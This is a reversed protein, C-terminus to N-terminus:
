SPGCNWTTLCRVMLWWGFVAVDIISLRSHALGVSADRYLGYEDPGRHRLVAVMRELRALETREGLGDDVVMGAIGCM